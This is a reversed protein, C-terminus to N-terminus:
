AEEADDDPHDGELRILMDLPISAGRGPKTFARDLAAQRIRNPRDHGTTSKPLIRRFTLLHGRLLCRVGGPEVLSFGGCEPCAAGTM